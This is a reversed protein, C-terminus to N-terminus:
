KKKSTSKTAKRVEREVGSIRKQLEKLSTQLKVIQKAQKDLQKVLTKVSPESTTAKKTSKRKKVVEAGKETSEM